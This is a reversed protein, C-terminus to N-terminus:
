ERVDIGINGVGAEVSVFQDGMGYRENNSMQKGNIKVNGLGKEVDITYGGQIALLTINLNGVGGEIESRNSVSATIDTEGVGAELSLVGLSGNEITINGVGSDIKTNNSHIEQIFINGVDLDLEIKNAQLFEIDAKGVGTDIKVTNFFVDEPLYITIHSNENFALLKEEEKIKLTRSIVEVQLDERVNRAVVKLQDGKLIEINSVAIDLTLNTIDNVEFEKEFDIRNVNTSIEVDNTFISVLSLVGLTINVILFIAFAIAGWKIVKQITTM